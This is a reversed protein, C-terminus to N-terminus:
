RNICLALSWTESKEARRKDILSILRRSRDSPDPSEVIAFPLPPQVRELRWM